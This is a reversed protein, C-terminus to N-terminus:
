CNAKDICNNGGDVCQNTASEDMPVQVSRCQVKDSQHEMSSGSPPCRGGEGSSFVMSPQQQNQPQYGTGHSLDPPKPNKTFPIPLPPLPTSTPIHSLNTTTTITTTNPTTIITKTPRTPEIM